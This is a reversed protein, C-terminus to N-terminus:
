WINIRHNTYDIKFGYTNILSQGEDNHLLLLEWQNGEKIFEIDQIENQVIMTLYLKYENGLIRYWYLFYRDRSKVLLVAILDDEHNERRTANLDLVKFRLISGETTVNINHEISLDDLNIKYFLLTADEARIFYAREAQLFQWDVNEPIDTYKHISVNTVVIESFFFRKRKLNATHAIM